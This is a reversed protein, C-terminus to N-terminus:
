SMVWDLVAMRVPVAYSAQEFYAACPMRDFSTPLEERRPLPHLVIAKADATELLEPTLSFRKKVQEAAYKDEFREEQVRTMYVVDAGEFDLERKEVVKAGYNEKIDKIVHERAEMGQPSILVIEAGYLALAYLLSNITRAHKLDGFFAVKLNEVRGKRMKMTYIDILTQTPHQNSGDGGNIVPAHAIEAARRASGELPSRIVIADVYNDLMKITDHFSEGKMLSSTEPLMDVVGMGLRQGASIFSLKTRTSPEFFALGLLSDLKRARGVLSFISEMDEVSLDRISILDKM